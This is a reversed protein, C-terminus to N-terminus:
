IKSKRAALPTNRKKRDPTAQNWDDELDQGKRKVPLNKVFTNVTLNVIDVGHPKDGLDVTM